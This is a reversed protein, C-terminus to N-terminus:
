QRSGYPLAFCFTSGKGETSNVWIRGGLRSVIESSIYLGLGLGPFTYEKTGSVRYFQEFVKDKKSASIGIGFDQVCLHVEHGHDQTYIIIQNAQPSYKIANTLLNTIVQSIRDRDGTIERDFKLERKILHKSTTRQVEETTEEVLQNFDFSSENLQLRGSNIKTVDLLDGILSNLRNVQRDMKHLLDANKDDGSHRFLKEMLQIYAKLSTVPTKLEHSAMGLFDDKQKQLEKQESIDVIAGIYGSFAGDDRYQPKGTAICWRVSGDTHLIRFEVEFFSRSNVDTTFQAGAQERDEPLIGQLWGTGKNRDFTLGTWDLWTQNVYTIMGIEDSMWLATPAATTINRLLRESEAIKGLLKQQEEKAQKSETIDLLTGLIRTSVGNLDFYVRGEVRVCHVTQDPWIIRAEYELHGTLKSLNYANNRLYVDEPHFSQVYQEHSVLENYGFIKSFHSSTIMEGSKLDLDFIGLGVADVALGARIEADELQRRQNELAEAGEKERRTLQYLETVNSPAHIFNLVEGQDDFLPTNSTTWYREEFQDTGRVPIDYRYNTLTHKKKSSAAQEFSYITQEINRADEATPNLPFVSFIGNGVLIQRNSNTAQLYAENAERITYVPADNAILLMAVPSKNFIERYAETSIEIGM